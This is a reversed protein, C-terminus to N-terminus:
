VAVVSFRVDSSVRGDATTAVFRVFVQQGAALTFPTTINQPSTPPSVAGAVKGAFQYPGKFYNLTAPQPRSTYVLLAGGVATAWQDTNTFALIMVRTSATLSTVTPPTLFPLGFTTPGNLVAALTAQARPVAGATFMGKGGVNVQNGLSDTKPTLLAYTNWADRQAATLVQGWQAQAVSFYSRVLQQKATNPNSPISRKRIYQGGRNHSFTAGAVSGSAQTIFNGNFKM